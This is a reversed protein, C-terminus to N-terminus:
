SSSRRRPSRRQPAPLGLLEHWSAVHMVQPALEELRNVDVVADLAAQVEAPPEGFKDRAFLLLMRRAEDAKGEELIAQYIVSEKMTLVGHLLTQIVAREYRLGMLIAM